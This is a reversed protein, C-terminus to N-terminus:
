TSESPSDAYHLKGGWSEVDKLSFGEAELVQDILFRTAHALNRRVSIKLPVKKERIQALSSVGASSAVAFGMRDESPMVALARVPWAQTYPGTGRYAMTLFSSPNISAVDLEGK